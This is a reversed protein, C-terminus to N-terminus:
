RGEGPAGAGLLETGVRETLVLVEQLSDYEIEPEVEVIKSVGTSERVRAVRGVAFGRPFVGDLGSTVVRDGVAVDAFKPVYQMELLGDARGRLMGEVRSRQVIGSVGSNPDTLLRIKAFGPGADVVRGVAGGWAVAPLDERVGRETGADVVLVRSQGTLSAALVEAGVSKPALEERMSLLRRLRQNEQAQERQREAEAELQQIRRRMEALERRSRGVDGFMRFAAAVSSGVTNAAGLVPSSVRQVGGEVAEASDDRRLSGAMLLLQAFLLIALLLANTRTPHNSQSGAM